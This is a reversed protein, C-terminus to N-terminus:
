RARSAAASILVREFEAVAASPVRDRRRVIALGRSLKGEKCVLGEGDALAFKSVFGVGIGAAVMQKISEISRLEMVVSLEVGAAAAARDIMERVATGAEFAVIPVGALDKWRFSRV